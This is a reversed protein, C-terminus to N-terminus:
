EMACPFASNTNRTNRVYKQRRSRLKRRLQTKRRKRTFATDELWDFLESHQM